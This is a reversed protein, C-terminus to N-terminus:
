PASSNAPAGTRGAAPADANPGDTDPSDLDPSDLQPSDLDPSDLDPSDLGASDLDQGNPNAVDPTTTLRTAKVAPDGSTAAPRPAASPTVPAKGGLLALDDHETLGVLVKEDDSLALAGPLKGLHDRLAALHDIIQRHADHASSALDRSRALRSMSEEHVAARIHSARTEADTIIQRAKAAADALRADADAHAKDAQQQALDRIQEAEATSKERLEAAEQRAVSVMEDADARAESRMEAAEDTALQLMRTLRDSMGTVTTPPAALHDVEQRLKTVEKNAKDFRQTMEQAHAHAADRDSSVMRMEAELRRIHDTVQDRNYGRM